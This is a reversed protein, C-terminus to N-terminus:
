KQAEAIIESNRVLVELFDGSGAEGGLPDLERVSVGLDQLFADLTETSLQPESFITKIQYRRVTDSLEKLSQPTPEKGAAPEFSAVVTLGNEAAFYGWADHFTVLNKNPLNVLREQNQTQASRSDQEFKELNAQYIAAQGPDLEQLKAAITAAIKRTNAFSLWYHPDDPGPEDPDTNPRLEIGQDVTVLIDPDDVMEQVWDDLGHGIVFVASTGQLRALESIKPEFTHPSAGPPLLVLAQVKDGGISQAISQLPPISAAIKLGAAPAASPLSLVAPSTSSTRVLFWLATITVAAILVIFVLQSWRM